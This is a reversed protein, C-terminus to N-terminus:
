DRSHYNISKSVILWDVVALNSIYIIIKGPQLKHM